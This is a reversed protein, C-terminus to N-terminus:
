VRTTNPYKYKEPWLKAMIKQGLEHRLRSDSFERILGVASPTSQKDFIKKWFRERVAWEKGSVEDPRDCQNQWHWDKFRPHKEIKKEVLRNTYFQVYLGSPRIYVVASGRTDLMYNAICDKPPQHGEGHASLLDEHIKNWTLEAKGKKTFYGDYTNACENLMTERHWGRIMDLDKVLQQINGKYRYAGYIKWSM